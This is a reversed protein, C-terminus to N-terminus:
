TRSSDWSILWLVDSSLSCDTPFGSRRRCLVCRVKITTKAAGRAQKMISFSLVKYPEGDLELTMGNKIDSTDVAVGLTSSQRPAFAIPAFASSGSALFLLSTLNLLKMTYTTRRLTVVCTAVTTVHASITICTVATKKEDAVVRRYLSTTAVM